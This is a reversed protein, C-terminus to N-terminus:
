PSCDRGDWSTVDSFAGGPAKKMGQRTSGRGRESLTAGFPFSASGTPSGQGTGPGRGECQAPAAARLFFIPAPGVAQQWRQSWVAYCDDAPGAAQQWGRAFQKEGTSPQFLRAAAALRTHVTKGSVTAARGTGAAPQASVFLRPTATWPGRQTNPYPYARGDEVCLSATKGLSETAGCFPRTLGPRGRRAPTCRFTKAMRVSFFFFFFFFFFFLPPSGGRM